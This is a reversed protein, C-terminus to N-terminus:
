VMDCHLMEIGHLIENSTRLCLLMHKIYLLLKFFQATAKISIVELYYSLLHVLKELIPM